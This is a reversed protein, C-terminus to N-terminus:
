MYTCILYYVICLHILTNNKNKHIKTQMHCCVALQPTKQQQAHTSKKKKKFFITKELYVFVELYGFWLLKTHKTLSNFPMKYPVTHEGKWYSVASCFHGSHNYDNNFALHIHLQTCRWMINLNNYEAHWETLTREHTSVMCDKICRKRTIIKSTVSLHHSFALSLLLHYWSVGM